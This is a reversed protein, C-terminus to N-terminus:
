KKRIAIKGTKNETASLILYIYIDATVLEGNDNRLDWTATKSGGEITVESEGLTRILNGGLDYIYINAESTLPLNAITVIQGQNLYCPNPSIITPLSVTFSSKATAPDDEEPYNDAEDKARVKFTYNGSPLTYIKTTDSIWGSWDQYDPHGELKYQYVLEEVPTFGNPDSGTWAFTVDVQPTNGTSTETPYDILTTEPPTSDLIITDSYVESIQGARDKFKVYVTKTGDGPTVTWGLSSAYSEWSSGEFSPSNAIIMESLGSLNDSASLSLTVSSSATYPDGGNISISGTPPVSDLIISGSYTDSENGAGDKLRVYVSKTGNASTLTWSVSSAYSEWLSGEFDPNNSLMMQSVGSSPSDSAALELTVSRSNTYTAGGNISVSSATPPITDLEISDEYTDSVNQASDKFRVYVTKDGEGPSLTWSKQTAYAQWPSWSPNDNSFQMESADTASLTLNVSTSNTFQDGGNISISGTPPSADAATFTANSAAIPNDSADEVSSGIAVYLVQESSFDSNPNITIVTKGANITADFPINAGSADTDKLTILADVNTDTLEAGNILRVAESFSITINTNLAVGTAGGAPNFSVTPVDVDAATFNWTSTDNIGAYSNGFTDEFASSDIQVYYGTASALNSSPNITITDTGSGSIDSTVNFTDVTSDDSSKKLYINGSVADVNESFTIVLNSDIAVGTANDAPSFTNVSPATIDFLNGSSNLKAAFADRGSTHARVPSGWTASSSGGVYVNGSSDVAIGRGVDIASGGLFTNWQLAGSGNLKAAFADSSATYARVPSGWTAYSYGGVYVNGSSDVAIGQGVDTGSGGLFPNWTTVPDIIVPIEPLHEGLSFGVEQKGYLVYTVTVPRKQGEIEQWAVPAGEVIRGNEYAISLNGQEDLSVPRNYRLRIREVPVGEKTTNVYYSSKVIAGPHAEYVLTVDDWINRYTVRTLPAAMGEGTEMLHNDGGEPIIANAGIFETKMMHSASAVIVGEGSFGLVHGSSTFQLLNDGDGTRSINLTNGQVGSAAIRDIISGTDLAPQFLNIPMSFLPQFASRLQSAYRGTGRNLKGPLPTGQAAVELRPSTDVRGLAGNALVFVLMVILHIVAKKM